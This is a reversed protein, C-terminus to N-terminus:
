KDLQQIFNNSELSNAGSARSYHGLLSLGYILFIIISVQVVILSLIPLFTKRGTHHLHRYSAFPLLYTGTKDRRAMQSFIQAPEKSIFHWILSIKNQWSNKSGLYKFAGHLSAALLIALIFLFLYIFVSFEQLSSVLPQQESISSVQAFVCNVSSFLGLILFLLLLKIKGRM